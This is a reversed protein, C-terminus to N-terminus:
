LVVITMDMNNLPAPLEVPLTIEFRTRLLADRKVIIGQDEYRIIQPGATPTFTQDRLYDAKNRVLSDVLQEVHPTANYKGILEKLDARFFKRISHINTTISLEARNVDTQDTSIQHRIYIPGTPTDQTLILTGGAAIRNMQTPTFYRGSRPLSAFGNITYNTIGQHPAVSSKLGAIACAAFYGAVTNGSADVLEDPWVNFVLREALAESNDAILDAQEDKTLERVIAVRVPLLATGVSASFGPSIVFNENDVISAIKATDFVIDGEATISYNTRFHDGVRVGDDLLTAGPIRVQNYKTAGPAPDIAVYGTWHSTDEKEGYLTVLSDLTRASFAIREMGRERDCMAVVHAKYLQIVDLNSSLPIVFYAEESSELAALASTYGALDDTAISTFHVARGASNELAKSVGYALANEPVVKGLVSPVLSIDSISGFQEAGEVILAQYEIFVKASVVPLAALTVQDNGTWSSDLVSIGAKVTFQDEDVTLAESGFEPYGSSPIRLTSKYIYFDVGIAAGEAVALPLPTSLTATRVAGVGPATVSVVYIDGKRLGAQTPNTPFKITLGLSGVPFAVNFNTVTQAAAYDLGNSTRVAVQPGAAWLGGKVVEVFYTTGARGVYDASVVTPTLVQHVAAAAITYTEGAVYAQSGTSAVAIRLGKTGINFATGFAAPTVEAVNDGQASTVRLIAASPAGGTICTITYVDSIYGAVLDGKFSTTATNVTVVHDTGEADVVTVPATYSQAGQNGAAPTVSSAVPAVTDAVFGTIRANVNGSATTVKVRDGVKVDRNGFVANRPSYGNTVFGGLLTGLSIRNAASGRVIKGDNAVSSYRALIDELHLKVSSQEIIGGVPFNLADNTEDSAPNYDGYSVSDRDAASSYKFVERRPGVIAVKLPEVIASPTLSFEEQITFKPEIYAM